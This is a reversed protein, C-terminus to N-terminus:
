NHIKRCTFNSFRCCFIIEHLNEIFGLNRVSESFKETIKPGSVLVLDVDIQIQKVAEITQEIM